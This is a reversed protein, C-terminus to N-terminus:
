TPLDEAERDPRLYAGGEQRAPVEDIQEAKPVDLRQHQECRGPDFGQRQADEVEEM